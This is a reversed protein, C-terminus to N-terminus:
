ELLYKPAAVGLGVRGTNNIFLSDINNAGSWSRFVINGVDGNAIYNTGGAAFNLNNDLSIDGASTASAAYSAISGVRLGGLIGLAAKPTSTGIGVNSSNAYLMGSVNLAATANNIELAYKPAAVGIGVNVGATDNYITTASKQWMSTLNSVNADIANGVYSKSSLNSINADINLGVYSKSSLNTLNSDLSKSTVATMNYLWQIATPSLSINGATINLYSDNRLVYTQNYWFTSNLTYFSTLNTNISTSTYSRLDTWNTYIYTANGNVVSNVYASTTINSTNGAIASNVEKRQFETQNYLWQYVGRGKINVDNGFYGSGWTSTLNGIDFTNNLYPLLSGNTQINIVSLASINYIYIQQAFIDGNLIRVGGAAFDGDFTQQGTFANGGTINAKISTNTNIATNVYAKTVDTQNYYFPSLTQNYYYINLTQ